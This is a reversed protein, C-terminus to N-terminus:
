NDIIFLNIFKPNTTLLRKKLNILIRKILSYKYYSGNGGGFGYIAPNKQFIFNRANIRLLRKLFIHEINCGPEFCSEKYADILFQKYFDINSIFFRTDLYQIEYKKFHRKFHADILFLEHRNKILKHVNSVWLKGTSKMFRDSQNLYKSNDLAYAIIEGEGYGKGKAEVEKTSNIFNLCEINAGPFARSATGSFDFGSGDCIVIKLEPSINVWHQLGELTHNLRLLPDKLKVTLDSPNICSTILLTPLNKQLTTKQSPILM